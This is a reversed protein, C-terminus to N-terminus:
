HRRPTIILGHYIGSNADYYSGVAAGQNNMGQLYTLVGGYQIHLWVDGQKYFATLFGYLDFLYGVVEGNSNIEAPTTATAAPFDLHSYKNGKRLFGFSAGMIQDDYTGVVDGQDNIGNAAFDFGFPLPPLLQFQGHSLILGFSPSGDRPTESGAVQGQLNIGDLSTDATPSYDAVTFQGAQWTFGHTGMSDDFFGSAQGADNIGTFYTDFAGPMDVNIFVGGVKMFGHYVQASYRFFGVIDGRNNIGIPFTGAAGLVDVDTEVFQNSDTAASMSFTSFLNHFAYWGNVSRSVSARTFYDLFAAEFIYYTVGNIVVPYTNNSFGEFPDCVELLDSYDAPSDFFEWFLLMM